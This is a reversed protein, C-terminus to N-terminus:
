QCSGPGGDASPACSLTGCCNDGGAGGSYCAAGQPLCVTVQATGEADEGAEDVVYVGITYIAAETFTHTVTQGKLPTGTGVSWEYSVIAGNPSSATATLTVPEGVPTEYPGGASVTPQPPPPPTCFRGGCGWGAPCGHSCPIGCVGTKYATQPQGACLWGPECDDSVEGSHSCPDWFAGGCGCSSGGCIGAVCRKSRCQDGRECPEGDRRVASSGSDIGGVGGCGACLVAFLVVSRM